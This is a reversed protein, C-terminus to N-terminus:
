WVRPRLLPNTAMRESRLPFADFPILWIVEHMGVQYGDFSVWGAPPHKSRAVVVKSQGVVPSEGYLLPDRM